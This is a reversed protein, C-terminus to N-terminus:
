GPLRGNRVAEAYANAFTTSSVFDKVSQGDIANINMTLGAPNGGGAAGGAAGAGSFNVSPSATLALPLLAGTELLSGIDAGASAGGAAAAGAAGGGIGFLSGLASFLSGFLGGGGGKGTGLIANEIEKLAGNIIDDALQKWLKSMAQTFSMQGAIMEKILDNFASEVPQVFERKFNEASQKAAEKQQEQWDELRKEREAQRKLNEDALKGGETAATADEDLAPHVMAFMDDSLTSKKNVGLAQDLEQHLKVKAALAANAKDADAQDAKRNAEESAQRDIFEQAVARLQNEKEYAENLAKQAATVADTAKKRLEMAVFAYGSDEKVRAGTEEVVKKQEEQAKTVAAVAEREQQFIPLLQTYLAAEGGSKGQMDEADSLSKGLAEVTEKWKKAEEAGEREKAGLENFTEIGIKLAEIGVGIGGGYAFASLLGTVEGAASKSAIGLQDLQAAMFGALRGESRQESAFERLSDGLSGIGEEAEHTGEVFESADAGIKVHVGETESM